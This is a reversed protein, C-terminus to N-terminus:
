CIYHLHQQQQVLLLSVHQVCNHTISISQCNHGFIICCCDCYSRFVQCRPDACLDGWIFCISVTSYGLTRHPCGNSSLAVSQCMACWICYQMHASNPNILTHCCLSQAFLRCVCTGLNDTKSVAVDSSDPGVHVSPMSWFQHKSPMSKTITMSCLAQRVSQM